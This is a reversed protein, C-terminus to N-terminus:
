TSISDDLIWTMEASASTMMAPNGSNMSFSPRVIYGSLTRGNLVMTHKRDLWDSWERENVNVDRISERFIAELYTYALTGYPVVRWTLRVQQNHYDSRAVKLGGGFTVTINAKNGQMDSGTPPMDFVMDDIQFPRHIDHPGLMGYTAVCPYTIAM